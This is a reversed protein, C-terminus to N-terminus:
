SQVTSNGKDFYGRLKESELYSQGRLDRLANKGVKVQKRKNLVM